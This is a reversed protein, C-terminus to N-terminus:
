DAKEIGGARPARRRCANPRVSNLVVPIPQLHATLFTLCQMAALREILLTTSIYRKTTKNIQVAENGGNASSIDGHGVIGEVIKANSHQVLVTIVTGRLSHVDKDYSVAGTLEAKSTGDPFAAKRHHVFSKYFNAAWTVRGTKPHLEPFLYKEKAARLADVYDLLGLRILEPHIPVQRRSTETKLSREKHEVVDFFPVEGDRRIDILRFGAAEGSRMGTLMLILPMWYASDHYFKLGPLYRENRKPGRCGLYPPTKLLAFVEEVTWNERGRDAKQRALEKSREARLGDIELGPSIGHGHNQGFLILMKLHTLHKSETVASVGRQDAPLRAGLALSASVGHKLEDKTCGWRKPLLRLTTVFQGLHKQTIDRTLTEAGGLVHALIKGVTRIQDETKCKGTLSIKNEVYKDVLTSWSVAPQKPKENVPAVDNAAADASSAAKPQFGGSNYSFSTKTPSLDMGWSGTVRLSAPHRTVGGVEGDNAAPSVEAVETGSQVKPKGYDGFAPDFEYPREPSPFGQPVDTVGLNSSVYQRRREVQWSIERQTECMLRDLRDLDAHDFRRGTLAILRDRELDSLPFRSGRQYCESFAKLARQIRDESYGQARWDEACADIALLNKSSRTTGTRLILDYVDFDTVFKIHNDRHWDDGNYACYEGFKQRHVDKLYGAVLAKLDADSPPPNSGEVRMKRQFLGLVGDESSVIDISAADLIVALQKAVFRSSTLLSLRVDIRRGIAVKFTNRYWYREGRRYLHRNVAM